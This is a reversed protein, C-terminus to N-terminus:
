KGVGKLIEWNVQVRAAGAAQNKEARHRVAKAFNSDITASGREVVMEAGAPIGNRKLWAVVVKLFPNKM